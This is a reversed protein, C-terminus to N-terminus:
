RATLLVIPASTPRASGGAPEVTLGVRDSDRWPGTPLPGSRGPLLGASRPGDPGILWVQYVRSSPLGRLGWAAVVARGRAASAVVTVTGGGTARGSASRADPASLVSAVDGYAAEARQARERERVVVGASAAVALCAAVLVGAWRWRRTRRPSIRLGGSVRGAGRARGREAKRDARRKAKRDARREAKRDPETGPDRGTARAPPLQRVHPIRALVRGRLGSPPREAVAMGLWAATAAFERLEAACAECRALHAEFLRREGADDVADLAYAGALAHVDARM